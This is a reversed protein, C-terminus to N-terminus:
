SRSRRKKENDLDKPSLSIIKGFILDRLKPKKNKEMIKNHWM